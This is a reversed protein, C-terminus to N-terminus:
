LCSSFWRRAFTQFLIKGKVYNQNKNIQWFTSKKYFKIKKIINYNLKNFKLNKNKLYKLSINDLTNNHSKNLLDLKKKFAQEHRMIIQYM